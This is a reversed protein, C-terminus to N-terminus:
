SEKKKTQSNGHANEISTYMYLTERVPLIAELNACEDRLQGTKTQIKTWNYVTKRNNQRCPEADIDTGDMPLVDLLHVWPIYDSLWRFKNLGLAVRM